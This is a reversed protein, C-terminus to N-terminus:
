SIPCLINIPNNVREGSYASENLFRPRQHLSDITKFYSLPIGKVYTSNNLPYKLENTKNIRIDKTQELYESAKIGILKEPFLSKKLGLGNLATRKILVVDRSCDPCVYYYFYEEIIRENKDTKKLTPKKVKFYSFRFLDNNRTVYKGCFCM